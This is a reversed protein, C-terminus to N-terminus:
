RIHIGQKECYKVLDDQPLLPPAKVQNAAPREATAKIIAELHQITFNSVGVANVKGTNRLALMAKWTDM